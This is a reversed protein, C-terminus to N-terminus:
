IVSCFRRPPVIAGAPAADAADEYQDEAEHIDATTTVSAVPAATAAAATTALLAVVADADPAATAAVHGRVASETETAVDRFRHTTTTRRVGLRAMLGGGLTTTSVTHKEERMKSRYKAAASIGFVFVVVLGLVTFLQGWPIDCDHKGPRVPAQIRRECLSLQENLQEIMQICARFDPCPYPAAAVGCVVCVLALALVSFTRM